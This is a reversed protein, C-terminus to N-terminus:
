LNRKYWFRGNHETYPEVVYVEVIKDLWTKHKKEVSFIYSQIKMERMVREYNEILRMLTWIRNAGSKLVLPGAVIAKNSIYTSLFGTLEDGKWAMITPFSLPAQEIGEAKVLDHAKAYDRPSAALRYSTM